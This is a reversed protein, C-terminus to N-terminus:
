FDVDLGFAFATSRPYASYDVSPTASTARRVSVEPDFGSYKTWCFLNNASAYVRVKSLKIKDTWKSPLTYGLTLQQLRLFSGDEVAWSHFVYRAMIPSWMTANANIQAMEEPSAIGGEGNLYTWCGEVDASMNRYSYKNTTTNEIKNANYVDGGYKWYFYAALDFNWLQFKLQLGGTHKPLANGIVVKDSEDITGDGNQDKLRLSGPRINGALLTADSVIGEKLIYTGDEYEFDDVTYWGDTEYGYMRGVSEGVELIYDGTIESGAWGSSMEMKDVGGLSKIKTDSFAINFSIDFKFNKRDVVELDLTLELGKNETAGVNQMMYTYGSSYPLKTQLLVDETTNRYADFTLFFRNHLFGLNFGINRSVTTEWTLDPNPKYEGTKLYSLYEGDIELVGDADSPSTYIQQFLNSSVRNNGTAGISYRVKADSIVQSYKLFNEESIRWAVSVAPFHGWQKGSAFKSSRDARYTASFLYKDNYSYKANGFYSLIVDDPLVSSNSPQPTGLSMNALCQEANLYEPFYRSESQNYSEQKKVFEEGVLMTLSHRQLKKLPYFIATNYNRFTSQRLNLISAMPANGNKLAQSTGIGYCRDTERFLGDVGIKSNLDLFSVPSIKIGLDGRVGNQTQKRYDANNVEIPNYTSSVSEFDEVDEINLPSYLFANRLRADTNSGETSVGAGNQIKNYYSTNLDFSLYKSVEHNINMGFNHRRSNQGILIGDKDNYDYSIKYATKDKKYKMLLSQNMFFGNEGFLQDVWDNQAVSQYKALEDYSGYVSTFSELTETSKMAATEYCFKAYNYPSLVKLKNKFTSFGYQSKYSTELGDGRAKKTTVIIVGGAARAGYIACAAADKLVEVCLIDSVPLNSINDVPFGDVIYLPANNGTISTGGRVTVEAEGMEGGESMWINLGAVKGQLANEVNGNEGQVFSSSSSVAGTVDSRRPVGYGVVVLEDIVYLQTSDLIFEAEVSAKLSDDEINQASADVCFSMAASILAINM